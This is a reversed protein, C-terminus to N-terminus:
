MHKKLEAHSQTFVDQLENLLSRATDVDREKILAEMEAAIESLRKVGVSSSSSKLMNVADLLAESEEMFGDHIDTMISLSEDLFNQLVEKYEDEMITHLEKLKNKDILQSANIKIVSSM